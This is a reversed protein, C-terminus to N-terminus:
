RLLCASERLRTGRCRNLPAPIPAFRIYAADWPEENLIREPTQEMRRRYIDLCVEPVLSDCLFGRRQAELAPPAAFPLRQMEQSASQNEQAFCPSVSVALGITACLLTRFSTRSKGNINEM